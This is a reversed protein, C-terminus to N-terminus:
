HNEGEAASEAVNDNFRTDLAVEGKGHFDMLKPMGSVNDAWEFDVKLLGTGTELGLGTNSM